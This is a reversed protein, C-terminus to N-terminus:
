GGVVMDEEFDAGAFGVLGGAALRRDFNTAWWGSTTDLGGELRGDLSAADFGELGGDFGARRGGLGTRGGEFGDFSDM